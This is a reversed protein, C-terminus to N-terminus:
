EDAPEPETKQEKYICAKVGIQPAFTPTGGVVCTCVKSGVNYTSGVINQRNKTKGNELKKYCTKSCQRSRDFGNGSTTRKNLVINGDGGAITHAAKCTSVKKINLGPFMTQFMVAESAYALSLVLVALVVKSVM